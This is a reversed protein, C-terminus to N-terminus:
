YRYRELRKRYGAPMRDGALRILQRPTVDCLVARAPPLADLSEVPAGTVIEGGLSRLYAAMANAIQQSGGRAVPWGVAHAAVLLALGYGATSLHDLPVIGHAAVGAFLARTREDEFKTSAFREATRIAHRGFRAMLLPSRLGAP